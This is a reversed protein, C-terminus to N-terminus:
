LSIEQNLQVTMRTGQDPSSDIAFKGDCLDVIQKVIALGLGLGQQEYLDRDFQVYAGLDAIQEQSMGRGRDSVVLHFQQGIRVSKLLVPTGAESFKFANDLLEEEIKKLFADSIRVAADDLDLQLDTLREYEDAKRRAWDEMYARTSYTIAQKVQELRNSHMKLLELQTYFLFNRCVRNLRTASRHICQVADSVETESADHHQLLFNTFGLISNLPTNIEHPLSSSINKRLAELKLQEKQLLIAQAQQVELQKAKNQEIYEQTKEITRELEKFDIPKTLFDFAGLNMARRINQMDNYASMVVAKLTSNVQSLASLLALGDMQPMNIDTLIMDIQCDTQLKQLAEIGNSAFIFDFKKSHIQKRFRQKILRELALEDDVVLIRAPRMECVDM